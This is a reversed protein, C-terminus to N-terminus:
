SKQSEKKDFIAGTTKYGKSVSEFFSVKKGEWGIGFLDKLLAGVIDYGLQASTKLAWWAGKGAYWIAGGTLIGGIVAKRALKQKWTEKEPGEKEALLMKLENIRKEEPETRIKLGELRWLEEADDKEGGLFYVAMERLTKPVGSTKEDFPPAALAAELKKEAEVGKAENKEKNKEPPTEEPQTETRNRLPGEM